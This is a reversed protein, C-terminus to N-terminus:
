CRLIFIFYLSCPFIFNIIGSNKTRLTIRKLINGRIANTQIEKRTINYTEQHRRRKKIENRFYRIEEKWKKETRWIPLVRTTEGNTHPIISYVTQGNFINSDFYFHIIKCSSLCVNRVTLFCKSCKEERVNCGARHWCFMGKKKSFM